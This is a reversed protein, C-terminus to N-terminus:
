NNFIQILQDSVASPTFIGVDTLLLTILDPPTYDCLPNLVKIDEKTLGFSEGVVEFDNSNRIDAPLDRQSLPFMRAFKFSEALVYFQKKLAKACLAATYTGVKVHSVFL